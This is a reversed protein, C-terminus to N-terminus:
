ARWRLHLEDKAGSSQVLKLEQVEALTDDSFLKELFKECFRSVKGVNFHETKSLHVIGALLEEYRAVLFRSQSVQFHKIEPEVSAEEEGVKILADQVCHCDKAPRIALPVALKVRNLAVIFCEVLVRGKETVCFALFAM